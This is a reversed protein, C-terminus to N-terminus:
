SVYAAGYMCASLMGPEIRKIAYYGIYQRGEVWVAYAAVNNDHCKTNIHNLNTGYKSSDICWKVSRKPMRHDSFRRLSIKMTGKLEFTYEDNLDCQKSPKMNGMYCGLYQGNILADDSLKLRYGHQNWDGGIWYTEGAQPQYGNMQIQFNPIKGNQMMKLCGPCSKSIDQKNYRCEASAEYICPCSSEKVKNYEWHCDCNEDCNCEWEHEDWKSKTIKICQQDYDYENFIKNNTATIWKNISYSIGGLKRQQLSM